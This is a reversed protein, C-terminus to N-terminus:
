RARPAATRTAGVAPLITHLLQEVRVRGPCDHGDRNYVPFQQHYGIGSDGATRMARLPIGHEHHLWRLLREISALQRPTWPTSAHGDDETEISVAWRSAGFQAYVVSETDCLQDVGGHAYVQFTAGVRERTKAYQEDFWDRLDAGGGNTHLFAARPPEPMRELDAAFALPTWRAFPCHAM